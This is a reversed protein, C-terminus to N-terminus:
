TVIINSLRNIQYKMCAYRGVYKVMKILNKKPMDKQFHRFSTKYSTEFPGEFRNELFHKKDINNM